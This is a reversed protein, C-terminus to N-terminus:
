KNRYTYRILRLNKCSIFSHLMIFKGSKLRTYIINCTVIIYKQLM